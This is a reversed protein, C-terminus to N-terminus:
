KTTHRKEENEVNINIIERPNDPSIISFYLFSKRRSCDIIIKRLMRNTTLKNVNNREIFDIIIDKFFLFTNINEPIKPKTLM